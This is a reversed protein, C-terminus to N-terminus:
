RQSQLKAGLGVTELKSPSAQQTRASFSAPQKIKRNLLQVASLDDVVDDNAESDYSDDDEDDTLHKKLESKKVESSMNKDRVLQGSSPRAAPAKRIKPPKVFSSPVEQNHSGISKNRPLSSTTSGGGGSRRTKQSSDYAGSSQQDEESTQRERAHSSGSFSSRDSGSDSEEDKVEPKRTVPREEIVGIGGSKFGHKAFM